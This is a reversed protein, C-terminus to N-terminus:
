LPRFVLVCIVSSGFLRISCSLLLLDTLSPFFAARRMREWFKNFKAACCFLSFGSVICFLSQKTQKEEFCQFTDDGDAAAEGVQGGGEEAAVARQTTTGVLRAILM